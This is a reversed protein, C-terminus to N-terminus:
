FGALRFGSISIPATAPNRTTQRTNNITIRPPPPSSTASSGVTKGVRLLSCNVAVAEVAVGLAVKVGEIGGVTIKVHVGVSWAVRGGVESGKGNSAVPRLPRMM